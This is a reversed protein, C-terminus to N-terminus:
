PESPTRASNTMMAQGQIVMANAEARVSEVTRLDSQAKDYAKQSKLRAADAVSWRSAARHLSDAWGLASLPDAFDSAQGSIQAFTQRALIASQRANDISQRARTSQRVADAHLRDVRAKRAYGERIMKKGRAFTARPEQAVGTAHVDSRPSQALSQTSLVILGLSSAMFLMKITSM